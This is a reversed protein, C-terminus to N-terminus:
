LSTKKVTRHGDECLMILERKQENFDTRVIMKGCLGDSFPKKAICRPIKDTSRPFIYAWINVLLGALEIYGIVGLEAIVESLESKSPRQTRLKERVQIVVKNIDM